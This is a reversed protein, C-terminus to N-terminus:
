IHVHYKFATRNNTRSSHHYLSKCVLFLPESVPIVTITTPMVNNQQEKNLKKTDETAKRFCPEVPTEDHQTIAAHFRLAVIVHALIVGTLSAKKKSIAVSTV